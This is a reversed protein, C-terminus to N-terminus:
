ERGKPVIRVPIGHRVCRAIMDATGRSQGDWFALCLDAGAMAMRENRRPGASNGEAEWAAPFAAVTWGYTAGGLDNAVVDAAIADAGTPCAGHVLTKNLHENGINWLRDKIAQRDSWHRSGCVIVRIPIPSDRM